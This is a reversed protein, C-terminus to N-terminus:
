PQGHSRLRGSVSGRSRAKLWAKAENWSATEGTTLIKRWREEAVRHFAEDREAQEVTQAIADLMFAHTSKGAHEAAAVVRAKLAEGLRITTTVMIGDYCLSGRETMADPYAHRAADISHELAM